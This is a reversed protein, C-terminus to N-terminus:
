HVGNLSGSAPAREYLRLCGARNMHTFPNTVAARQLAGAAFFCALRYPGEVGL